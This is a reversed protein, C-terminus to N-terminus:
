SARTCGSLGTGAEYMAAPELLLFIVTEPDLNYIKEAQERNMACISEIQKEQSSTM